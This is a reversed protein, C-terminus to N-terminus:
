IERLGEAVTLKLYLGVEPLFDDEESTIDVSIQAYMLVMWIDPLRSWCAM